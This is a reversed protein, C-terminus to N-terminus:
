PCAHTSGLVRDHIELVLMGREALRDSTVHHPLYEKLDIALNRVITEPAEILTLRRHNKSMSMVFFDFTLTEVPVRSFIM